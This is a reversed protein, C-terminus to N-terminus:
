GTFLTVADAQSTEPMFYVRPSEVQIDFIGMLPPQTTTWLIQAKDHVFVRSQTLLQEDTLAIELNKKMSQPANLDWTLLYHKNSSQNLTKATLYLRTQADDTTLSFRLFQLRNTAESYLLCQPQQPETATLDFQMLYCTISRDNDYPAFDPENFTAIGKQEDTLHESKFHGFLGALILKNQAIEIADIFCDYKPIDTHTFFPRAQTFFQARPEDLQDVRRLQRM